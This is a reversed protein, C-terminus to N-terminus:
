IRQIPSIAKSSIIREKPMSLARKQWFMKRTKDVIKSLHPM